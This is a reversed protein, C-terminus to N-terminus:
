LPRIPSAHKARGRASPVFYVRAPPGERLLWLPGEGATNLVFASPDGFRELRTPTCNLTITEVPTHSAIDYVVLTRSGGNAVYLQTRDASLGIGTPSHISSDAAFLMAAPSTAYNRVQWIGQAQSDTFYLDRGALIVASPVAASALLRIGDAATGIYIGGADADAAGVLLRRGDFALVTVEGPILPLDFPPAAAPSQPLGAIIQAQGSHSSYLAAAAGDAAWAFRDADAIAGAVQVATIAAGRLGAYLQLAGGPQVALASSGDPSVAAAVLGTAVPVGLSAAAPIGGVPRLAGAPGDFVFGAVPPALSASGAAWAALACVAGALALRGTLM